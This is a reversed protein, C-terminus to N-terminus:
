VTNRTKITKSPGSDGSDLNWLVYGGIAAVLLMFMLIVVRFAMKLAKKLLRFAIYAGLLTVVIFIIAAIEM